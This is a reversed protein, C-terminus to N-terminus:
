SWREDRRKLWGTISLRDRRAPVVEHLFRASLFTVLRGGVPLVEEYHSADAPDTYIRLQGGDSEDWEQNLYLIATVTRQGVGRFQDLHKRYFSGPPFIAFHAELEFLGLLLHRNIALRLEELRNLYVRQAGSLSCPDLWKVRDTRVKTDIRFSNGRGTGALRFASSQWLSRAEEALQSVLLRPLFEETTGWGAQALRQAIEEARGLRPLGDLAEDNAIM